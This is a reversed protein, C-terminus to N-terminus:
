AANSVPHAIRVPEVPIGASPAQPISSFRDKMRLFPREVVVWSVAAAAVAGVAGVFPSVHHRTALFILPSQWLYIAYSRTGVWAMPSCGFVRSVASGPMTVLGVILAAAGLEAVLTYLSALSQQPTDNILVVAGLLAALGVPALVPTAPLTRPRLTMVLGIACGILLGHAHALPGYYNLGDTSGVGMWVLSLTAIVALAAVARRLSVALLLPLVFPWVLYFQEELALTWTHNYMGVGHGAYGLALDTTYTAAITASPLDVAILQTLVLMAILAPYLRLARRMYFRGRAIHGGTQTEKVLLSTILFGSLVFFVSVGLHGGGFWDVSHDMVVLAVALARVGDLPSIRPM